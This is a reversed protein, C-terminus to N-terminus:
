SKELNGSEMEKGEFNMTCVLTYYSTPEPKGNEKGLSSEEQKFLM